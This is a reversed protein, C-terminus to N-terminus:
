AERQGEVKLGDRIVLEYAPMWGPVLSAALYFFPKVDLEESWCKIKDRMTAEDYKAPDESEEDLFLACIRLAPDDKDELKTIGNMINHIRVSAEALKLKNLDDWALKLHEFIEQFTASYGFELMIFQLQRYRNFSLSEKKFFKRGGCEFVKEDFNIIRLESM